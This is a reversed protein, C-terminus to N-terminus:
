RRADAFQENDAGLRQCLRRTALRGSLVLSAGTTPPKRKMRDIVKPLCRDCYISEKVMVGGTSLFHVGGGQGHPVPRECTDCIPRTAWLQSYWQYHAFFPRM